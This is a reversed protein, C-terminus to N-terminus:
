DGSKGGSAAAAKSRAAGAATQVRALVEDLNFSAPKQRPPFLAFDKIQGAVLGQMAYMMFIHNVMWDWYRNSNFDAREFPDLRLNFITPLRLKV